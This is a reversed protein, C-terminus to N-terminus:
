QTFMIKEHQVALCKKTKQHKNLASRTIVANCHECVMSEKNRKSIAEKNKQYVAQQKEKGGGNHYKENKTANIKDKNKAVYKQNNQKVKDPNTQKWQKAKVIYKEKNAEYYEQPTRNPICKNVCKTSEIYKREIARLQDKTECPCDELLIIEADDYKVIHFSTIFNNNGKLYKRYKQIHGAKRSSLWRQTTSGVYCTDPMHSSVIKYIKSQSYNPM